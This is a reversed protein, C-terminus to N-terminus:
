PYRMTEHSCCWVDEENFTKYTLILDSISHPHLFHHLFPLLKGLGLPKDKLLTAAELVKNGRPMITRGRTRNEAPLLGCVCRPWSVHSLRCPSSPLSSFNSSTVHRWGQPSLTAPHFRSIVDTRTVMQLQEPLARTKLPLALVPCFCDSSCPLPIPKRPPPNKPGEGLHKQTGCIHRSSLVGM